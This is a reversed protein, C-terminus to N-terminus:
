RQVEILDRSLCLQLTVNTGDLEVVSGVFEGNLRAVEGVILEQHAAKVWKKVVVGDREILSFHDPLPSRAKLYIGIDDSNLLLIVEHGEKPDYYKIKVEYTQLEDKVKVEYKDGVKM